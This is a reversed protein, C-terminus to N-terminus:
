PDTNVLETKSTKGTPAHPVPNETSIFYGIIAIFMVILIFGGFNGRFPSTIQDDVRTCYEVDGNICQRVVLKTGLAPNPFNNHMINFIQIIQLQIHQLTNSPSNEWIKKPHLYNQYL